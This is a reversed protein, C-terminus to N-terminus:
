IPITQSKWLVVFSFFVITISVIIM